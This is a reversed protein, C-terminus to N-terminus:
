TILHFLEFNWTVNNDTAGTVQLFVDTGSIAFSCDWGAQDEATLGDVVTGVLTVTGAINKYCASRIYAASDGAVGASGGTRRASVKAQIIMTTTSAMTPIVARHANTPTNNTTLIRGCVRRSFATTNRTGQIEFAGDKGTTANGTGLGALIGGGDQDISSGSTMNIFGADGAGSNAGGAGLVISGGDQLGGLATGAELQIEGGTVGDGAEILVPGGNATPTNGAGARIDVKGGIGYNSFGGFIEIIGGEEGAGASGEFGGGGDGAYFYIDGGKGTGGDGMQVTLSGAEDNSRVVSQVTVSDITGNFNTDPTITISNDVITDTNLFFSISGLGASITEADYVDGLQVEVTGATGGINLGVIYETSAALGTLTQKLTGTNGATHLVNNSSYAWGTNLTWGNANGTFTGNTVLNSGLGVTAEGTTIFLNGSNEGAAATPTAIYADEDSAGIFIRNNQEDWRLNEDAGFEGNKNFQVETDNGAPEFNLKPSNVGDHTHFPVQKSSDSEVGGFGNPQLPNPTITPVEDIM